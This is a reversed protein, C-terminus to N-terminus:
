NYAQSQCKLFNKVIERPHGSDLPTSKSPKPTWFSVWIGQQSLSLHECQICQIYCKTVYSLHGCHTTVLHSTAHNAPPNISLHKNGPRGGPSTTSGPHNKNSDRLYTGGPSVQDWRGISSVSKDAVEGDCYVVELKSLYLMM